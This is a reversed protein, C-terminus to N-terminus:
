RQNQQNKKKKSISGRCAFVFLSSVFHTSYVVQIILDQQDFLAWLLFFCKRCCADPAGDVINSTTLATLPASSRSFAFARGFMDALWAYPLVVAVYVAHHRLIQVIRTKTVHCLLGGYASLAHM